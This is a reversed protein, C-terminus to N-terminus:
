YLQYWPCLGGGEGLLIQFVFGLASGACGGVRRGGAGLSSKDWEEKGGGWRPKAVRLMELRLLPGLMAAAFCLCGVLWPFAFPFQSQFPELQRDRAHSESCAGHQQLPNNKRWDYLPTQNNMSFFFLRWDRLLCWGGNVFM